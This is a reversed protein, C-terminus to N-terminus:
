LLKIINGQGDELRNIEFERLLTEVIGKKNFQLYIQMARQFTNIDVTREKEGIRKLYVEYLLELPFRDQILVSIVEEKTWMM